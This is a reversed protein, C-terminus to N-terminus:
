LVRNIWGGGLVEKNKYLVVAQGPTIARQPNLFEVDAENNSNIRVVADDEHHRNRVKAKVLLEGDAYLDNIDIKTRDVWSLNEAILKSSYIKDEEGVVLRNEKSDIGVVYMPKGTAIGLGRRQGVTFYYIGKHKGLVEGQTNM